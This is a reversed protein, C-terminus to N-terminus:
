DEMEDARFMRRYKGYRDQPSYRPPFTNVTSTGCNRCRDSLTYKGCTNCRLIRSRM